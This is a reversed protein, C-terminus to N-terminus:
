PVLGAKSPTRRTIQWFATNKLLNKQFIASFYIDRGKLNWPAKALIDPKNM